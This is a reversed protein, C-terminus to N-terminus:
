RLSDLVVRRASEDVSLAAAYKRGVLAGLSEFHSTYYDFYAFPSVGGRVMEYERVAQKWQEFVDSVDVYIFPRFDDSDEWNDAYFVGRVDRYPPHDTKVAELEAMLVADRTIASTASHDKHFSNKWHTIVYNPKVQRIVDAVYKRANDDNPLLADPYPGIIVEAGLAKASAAAERRKQEAYQAPSLHPNGAEGLTLHLIVIRDGRLKQHALIPGATLDMDAAHAGVALITRQQAPAPADCVALLLVGAISLSLKIHM